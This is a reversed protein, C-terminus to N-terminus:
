EHSETEELIAECQEWHYPEINECEFMDRLLEIAREGKTKPKIEQINILLAKHTDGKSKYGRWHTHEAPDSQTFVEVAGELMKNVPEVNEQFWSNLSSVEHTLLISDCISKWDPKEIKMSGNKLDKEIYMASPKFENPKM